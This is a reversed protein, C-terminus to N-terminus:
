SWPAAPADSRIRGGSSKSWTKLRPWRPEGKRVPRGIARGAVGLPKGGM